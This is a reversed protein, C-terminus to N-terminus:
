GAVIQGRFRGFGNIRNDGLGEILGAREVIQALDDPDLLDEMLAASVSVRWRPFCPRVRVTRSQNVGVMTRYTFPALAYLQDLDRPGDYQVAVHLDMFLLSRAVQTGQRNATAAKILCKRLNATPLAPGDIGDATYLGGFWELRAIQKRDEETKIRKGAIEAIARAIPDDPDALRINHHVMPTTGEAVITIQLM